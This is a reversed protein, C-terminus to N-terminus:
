PRPRARIRVKSVEGKVDPIAIDGAVDSIAPIGLDRVSAAFDVCITYTAALCQRHVLTAEGVFTGLMPMVSSRLWKVAGDVDRGDLLRGNLLLM